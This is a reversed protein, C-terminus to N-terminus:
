REGYEKPFVYRVTLENGIDKLVECKVGYGRIVDDLIATVVGRVSNTHGVCELDDADMIDCLVGCRFTVLVSGHSDGSEGQLVLGRGYKHVMPRMDNNTWLSTDKIEVLDGHRLKKRDSM